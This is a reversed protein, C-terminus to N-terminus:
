FTLEEWAGRLEGYAHNEGAKKAEEMGKEYVKIAEETKDNRELLKALHYYSGIYEPERNLIEEFLGRAEEDNGLKIYELAMAHQVFSDHPNVQLFEKLKSIKDM